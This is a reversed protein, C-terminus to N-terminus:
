MNIELDGSVTDVDIKNSSNGIVAETHNSGPSNDKNVPFNSEVDGSVSDFKLNFQSKDTLKIKADGSTTHVKINNNFSRYEVNLNGSVSNFSLNGSFGEIVADGSTSHMESEKTELSSANLNGSVTSIKFTSLSFNEIKIDGSITDTFVNGSYTKPLYVDLKLDSFNYNIGMTVSNPKEIAINLKDSINEAKLYPINDRNSSYTGHFHVKVSNTDTPIIDVDIDVTDIKIDKIGDSSFTKESNIVHKKSNPFIGNYGEIAFITGAVGIALVMLIFLWLSLRKINLNRFM